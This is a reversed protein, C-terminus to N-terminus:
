QPLASAHNRPAPGGGKVRLQRESAQCGGAALQLLCQKPALQMNVVYQQRPQMLVQRHRGNRLCAAARNAFSDCYAAHMHGLSSATFRLREDATITTTSM